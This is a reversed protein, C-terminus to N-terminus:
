INTDTKLHMLGKKVGMITQTIVFSYVTYILNTAALTGPTNPQQDDKIWWYQSFYYFSVKNLITTLPQYPSHEGWVM